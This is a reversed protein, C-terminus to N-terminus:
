GNQREDADFDTSDDDYDDEDTSVAVKETARMVQARSAAVNQAEATISLMIGLACGIFMASSGGMSVLPLTQGTVPLLGVAVCMNIAAQLTIMIALGLLAYIHFVKDCSKSLVIARGLLGVYAIIVMFGGWIGYEELIIAFIFDSFAMPLFNKMKSNGAGVGMMGGTAVATLSQVAQSNKDNSDDTDDMFREIRASWTTARSFPTNKLMPAFVLLLVIGVVGFLVAGGLWKITIRGIFMLVIVTMVILLATSLNEKAVFFVIAGTAILISRLSDDPKDFHQAMKKAVYVILAIKAFESPQITFGGVKFWRSSGNVSYGIFLVLIVAIIGIIVGLGAFTYFVKPRINCCGIIAVFGMLMCVVHRMITGAIDGDHWQYAYVSSASYVSLLSVVLLFAIFGWIYRDGRCYRKILERM